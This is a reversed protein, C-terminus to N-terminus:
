LVLTGWRQVNHKLKGGRGFKVDKFSLVPLLSMTFLLSFLEALGDTARWRNWEVVYNEGNHGPYRIGSLDISVTEDKDNHNQILEKDM